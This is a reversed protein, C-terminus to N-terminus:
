EAVVFVFSSTKSVKTFHEFSNIPLGLVLKDINEKHVIDIVEDALNNIDEYRIVKYPSAILGLSDSIALGLTKTGLDMGLIKM